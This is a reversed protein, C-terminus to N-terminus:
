RVGLVSASLDHDAAAFSFAVQRIDQPTQELFLVLPAGDSRFLLLLFTM